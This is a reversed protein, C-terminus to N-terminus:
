HAFVDYPEVPLPNLDRDTKIKLFHGRKELEHRLPAYEEEIAPTTMAICQAYDADGFGANAQFALCPPDESTGEGTAPVLPFIALISNDIKYKRFVVTIPMGSDISENLKMTGM